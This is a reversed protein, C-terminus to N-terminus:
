LAKFVCITAAFSHQHQFLKIDGIRGIWDDCQANLHSPTIIDDSLPDKEAGWMRGYNVQIDDIKRGNLAQVYKLHHSYNHLKDLHRLRPFFVFIINTNQM